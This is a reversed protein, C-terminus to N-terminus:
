LEHVSEMPAGTRWHLRWCCEPVNSNKSLSWQAGTTRRLQCGTTKVDGVDWSRWWFEARVIVAEHLPREPDGQLFELGAVITQGQQGECIKACAEM